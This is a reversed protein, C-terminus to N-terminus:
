MFFCMVYTCLRCMVNYRLAQLTYTVANSSENLISLFTRKEHMCSARANSDHSKREGGEELGPKDEVDERGAGKGLAVEGAHSGVQEAAGGIVAMEHDHHGGHSESLVNYHCM